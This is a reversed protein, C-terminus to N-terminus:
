KIYQEVLDIADKVNLVDGAFSDEPLVIDFHDELTLKVEIKDLSDLKLDEGFDTELEFEADDNLYLGVTLAEKIQALINERTM